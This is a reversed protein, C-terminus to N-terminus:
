LFYESNYCPMSYTMLIILLDPLYLGFYKVPSLSPSHSVCPLSILGVLHLLQM